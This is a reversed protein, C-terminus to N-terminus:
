ARKGLGPAGATTVEYARVTRGSCSTCKKADNARAPPRFLKGCRSCERGGRARLCKACVIYARYRRAGCKVCKKTSKTPQARVVPVGKLVEPLQERRKKSVLRQGRPIPSKAGGPAKRRGQKAKTEVRRQRRALGHACQEFPLDCLDCHRDAIM